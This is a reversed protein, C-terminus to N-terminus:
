AARVRRWTGCRGAFGDGADDYVYHDVAALEEAHRAIYALESDLDDWTQDGVEVRDPPDGRHITRYAEAFEEATVAHKM